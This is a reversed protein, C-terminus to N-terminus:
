PRSRGSTKSQQLLSKLEEVIGPKQSYLNTTEGPDNALDYLQGPAEPATGPLAFRKLDGRAYDNGGSGPHDLYKWHGRRISLTAAGRFAQTILYPRIPQTATGTLAPLLNFSDEASDPPLEAGTIAAITALLDTLCAPQDSTTGAQIRGPWRVIMPVRHGGEWSDRKLGRWPRTGDHAHDARMHVVTTTEPGNDSSLIVLTNQALGHAELERMLEGVIHDFEAIFDGHPGAQTKGRFDKGAFSPLHVAQTAHFLFFPQKPSNRAHQAIFERSKQLFRRDVEEMPFDPAILGPRCDDAYPHKPLTSRDLLQTPPVPIRDGDIFAYLWDTTPCCATGFFRDFGHDLPGGEIRRSFDIRHVAEIGGEHIPKGETDRFTLGVHWKGIAATAYGQLKLMAPLTLRGKAILSPGGAGTFVTGGNPVRFAMQGTMLSYRSPTCVTAPSHADTFRMGESALRDIHPTPVKSDANYCRVDGYGLDDALILLINPKSSTAAAAASRARAKARIIERAKALREPWVFKPAKAPDYGALHGTLRTQPKTYKLITDGFVERCLDALAPDYAVLEARTNVHNHDHDNERNDDFWSQVGEAFYEHHNVSPYKGAWLGAKMAADYAAKVRRDFTDDVNIMGRLHINHALEHILINETSYPDGEYALLNEEACSCYPDTRSGGMGRARADRYDRTSIGDYGPVPEDALWAWEPQDCTYENHALISLRAGSKIMAERVDARRALMMDIIYVAEKLAYPNVKASALVPFGGASAQQTYFSPLGGFRYAQVLVEATVTSEQKDERGVIAFRHGLTTGIVRHKGPPVSGNPVREGDPRLWFVDVVQPSGNIIQLQARGELAAHLEVRLALLVTVLAFFPLRFM